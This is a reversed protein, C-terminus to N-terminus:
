LPIERLYGANLLDVISTTFYYQIGGGPQGMAPAIPGEWIPIPRVVEYRHFGAGLSHPPLARAPFETGVPSGFLGFGPGFRDFMDGPNMVTPTRAEPTSFGQPHSQSDPWVLEPNGHADRIGSPWYERNWADEGLGGTPDYSTPVLDQVEPNTSPAGPSLADSVRNPSSAAGDLLGQDLLDAQPHVLRDTPITQGNEDYDRLGGSSDAGDGHPGVPGRDEADTHAGDTQPGSTDAREPPEHHTSSSPSRAEPADGTPRASSLPEGAGSSPHGGAPNVPASPTNGAGPGASAATQTRPSEPSGGQPAKSEPTRTPSEPSPGRSAPGDSPSHVGGGSHPAMPMGGGAMPAPATAAPEHPRADVDGRAHSPERPQGGDTSPREHAGPSEAAPTHAPQQDAPAHTGEGPGGTYGESPPQHSENPAYNRDHDVPSPGPESPSQSAEHPSAPSPSEPAHQTAPAPAHGSSPTPSPTTPESVRPPEGPGSSPSQPA